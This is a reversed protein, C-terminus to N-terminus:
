YDDGPHWPRELAEASWDLVATPDASEWESGENVVELFEFYKKLDGEGHINPHEALSEVVHYPISTNGNRQKYFEDYCEEDLWITLKGKHQALINAVAVTLADNVSLDLDGKYKSLVAAVKETVNIPEWFNISPRSYFLNEVLFYCIDDKEDETLDEPLYATPKSHDVFIFRDHLEIRDPGKGTIQENRERILAELVEIPIDSIGDFTIDGIFQTVIKISAHDFKDRWTINVKGQHKGLIKATDCTISQLQNLELLGVHNAFYSALNDNIQRIGLSLRGKRGAMFRAAVNNLKTLRSLNLGGKCKSLSEAAVDSLETLGCLNLDGEFNSLSEAATDDIRTFQYLDVSESDELFNEAIEKTLIKSM